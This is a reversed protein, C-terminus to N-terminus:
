PTTREVRVAGASLRQIAALGTDIRGLRVLGSSLEGNKYFIAVNGWPAYFSIDGAAPTYAKPSGSTSLKRPLDAIKETGAYDKLPLTLPLMAAFDKAANNDDLLATAIVAGDATIQIKM